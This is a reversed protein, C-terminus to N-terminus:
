QQLIYGLYYLAQHLFETRLQLQESKAPQQTAKAPGPSLPISRDEKQSADSPVLGHTAAPARTTYEPSREM